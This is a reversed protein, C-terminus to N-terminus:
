AAKESRNAAQEKPTMWKCNFPEYNGEDGFRGLTTGKPRPGMDALFIEFGHEGEWRECVKIGRGGYRGYRTAKPNNCRRRMETWSRYEATHCMGHKRARPAKRPRPGGEAHLCGCSKTNGNKLSAGHVTADRGCDCHCRFLSQRGGGGPPNYYGAFEIVVLRGFRQGAALQMREFM